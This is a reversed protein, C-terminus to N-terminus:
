FLLLSRRVKYVLRLSSVLRFLEGVSLVRSSHHGGCVFVWECPGREEQYLGPWLSKARTYLYIFLSLFIAAGSLTHPFGVCFRDLKRTSSGNNAWIIARKLRVGFVGPFRYKKRAHDRPWIQDFKGSKTRLKRMVQRWSQLWCWM